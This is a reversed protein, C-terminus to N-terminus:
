VPTEPPSDDPLSGDDEALGALRVLEEKEELSLADLWSDDRDEGPPRATSRLDVSTTPEGVSLRQLDSAARLLSPVSKVPIEEDFGINRLREAARTLALQGVLFHQELMKQRRERLKLRMERDEEADHAECRAVWMWRRSWKLLNAREGQTVESLKDLTGHYYIAAAKKVSRTLGLDRYISFARYAEDSEGPQREWFAGHSDENM